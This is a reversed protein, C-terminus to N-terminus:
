HQLAFVVNQFYKKTFSQIGTPWYTVSTALKSVLQSSSLDQPREIMLLIEEAVHELGRIVLEAVFDIKSSRFMCIQSDMQM